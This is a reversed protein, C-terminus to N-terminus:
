VKASLIASLKMLERQQVEEEPSKYCKSLEEILTQIVKKNEMANFYNPNYPLKMKKLYQNIDVHSHAQGTTPDIFFHIKDRSIDSNDIPLLSEHYFAIIFHYPISIIKANIGLSECIVQYIIANTLANGKKKALVKNIFFDERSNYAVENGKLNYYNYLISSLVNAQELPTLFTTLELWVNKRITEIDKLMQSEELEPYQFKAVLLAGYLLDRNKSDRWTAVEEHLTSYHLRQILAELREHLKGPLSSEWIFELDPIITKGYCVIKESVAQYVEEDPDDLLSFLAELERNKLMKRLKFMKLADDGEDYEVIPM